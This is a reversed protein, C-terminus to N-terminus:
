KDQKEFEEIRLSILKKLEEPYAKFDKCTEALEIAELSIQVIVDHFPFKKNGPKYTLLISKAGQAFALFNSVSKEFTDRSADEESLNELLTQLTTSSTGQQPETNNNLSDVLETAFEQGETYLPNEASPNGHLVQAFGLVTLGFLLTIHRIHSNM